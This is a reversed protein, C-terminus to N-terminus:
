DTPRVRRLSGMIFSWPSSRQRVSKVAADSPANRVVDGIIRKPDVTFRNRLRARCRLRDDVQCSGFGGFEDDHLGATAGPRARHVSPLV